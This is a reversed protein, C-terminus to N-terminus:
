QSLVVNINEKNCLILSLYEEAQSFLFHYFNGLHKKNVKYYKM